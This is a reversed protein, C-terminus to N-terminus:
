FNHRHHHHHHHFHHHHQHGNTQPPQSQHQMPGPSPQPGTIENEHTFGDRPPFSQSYGYGPNNRHYYPSMAIQRFDDEIEEETGAAMAPASPFGERQSVDYLRSVERNYLDLHRKQVTPDLPPRFGYEPVMSDMLRRERNVCYWEETTNLLMKSRIEARDKLFQQHLQERSARTQIDICVRQYRRRKEAQQIRNERVSQIDSWARELDPHTGEACMEIEAYCRAMRDSHIQDRLAAFEVEIDTLLSIAEKREAQQRALLEEETANEEESQKSNDIADGADSILLADEDGTKSKLATPELVNDEKVEDPITDQILKTNNDDKGEGENTKETKNKPSTELPPSTHKETTDPKISAEHPTEHLNAKHDEPQPQVDLVSETIPLSENEDIKLKKNPEQVISRRRKKTPPNQEDDENNSADNNASSTEPLDLSQNPDPIPLVTVSGPENDGNREAEIRIRDLEHLEAAGLRETEAESDPPDSLESTNDNDPLSSGPLANTPSDSAFPKDLFSDDNENEPDSSSLSSLSSTSPPKQLGKKAEAIDNHDVVPLKDPQIFSISDDPISDKLAIPPLNDESSEKPKATLSEDHTQPDDPNTNDLLSTTPTNNTSADTHSLTLTKDPDVSPGDSSDVENTKADPIDHNEEHTNSSSPENNQGQHKLSNKNPQPSASSPPPSGSPKPPKHSESSSSIPKGNSSVTKSISNAIAAPETATAMELKRIDKPQSSPSTNELPKITNRIIPKPNSTSLTQSLSTPM